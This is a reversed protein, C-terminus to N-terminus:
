GRGIEELKVILLSNEIMHRVHDCVESRRVYIEGAKTITSSNELWELVRKLVDIEILATTLYTM